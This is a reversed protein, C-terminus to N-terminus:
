APMAQDFLDDLALLSDHVILGSKCFSLLHVGELQRYLENLDKETGIKQVIFADEKVDVIGAGYKQLLQMTAPDMATKSLRFHGVQNLETESSLYITCRYVEIIKEIKHKVFHVFAVPIEAELTILVLDQVDTRAVNLQLVDYSSRNFIMLIQGLLGKKDEAHITVISTSKNKKM